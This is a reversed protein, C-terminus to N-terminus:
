VTNIAGNVGDPFFGGAKTGPASSGYVIALVQSTNRIVALAQNFSDDFFNVGAPPPIVDLDDLPAIDVQNLDCLLQLNGSHLAEVLAIQAAYQLITKNILTIAGGYASVGTVEFDRALTLFSKIGAFSGLADLKIAPKAITNEPGLVSRLLLVHDVEDRMLQEAVKRLPGVGGLKEFPVKVGGTTPGTVGVSGDIPIGNETLSRGTVVYSYFEAELYELNLAFQLVAIDATSLGAAEVPHPALGLAAAGPIRDLAGFKGALAAVGALGVGTIGTNRLFNRRNLSRDIQQHSQM